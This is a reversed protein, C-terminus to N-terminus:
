YQAVWDLLFWDWEKSIPPDGLVIISGSLGNRMSYECILAQPEFAACKPNTMEVEFVGIAGVRILDAASANLSSIVWSQGTYIARDYSIWLPPRPRVWITQVFPIDVPNRGEETFRVRSFLPTITFAL